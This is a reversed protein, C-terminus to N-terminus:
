GTVAPAPPKPPKPKPKPKPQPKPKPKPKPEPTPLPGPGLDPNPPPTASVVATETTDGCATPGAGANKLDGSYAAVWRYTGPLAPIFSASRYDGNGSVAATATFVPTGSCTTNAPGFLSFSIHGGPANGGSLHAVDFMPAGVGSPSSATTSFTPTVPTTTAPRVVVAEAADRCRTPGAAHNRHDGTYRARWRYVGSATPAFSASDYSGNDVVRTRSRFVPNGTCTANDPGYLVFVIGGTPNDGDSLHATDHIAGGLTVADSATTALHPVAPAATVTVHEAPDECGTTENGNVATNDSLFTARWRYLGPETPTFFPPETSYTGQGDVATSTTFVLHENTCDPDNPGFLTFVIQGRLPTSGGKLFATDSLATGLPVDRAARRIRGHSNIRSPSALTSLALPCNPVPPVFRNPLVIDKMESDIEFSARSHAWTAAVAGCPLNVSQMWQTLNIAAEGFIRPDLTAGSAYFGPLFNRIASGAGTPPVNTFSGQVDVCGPVIPTPALPCPNVMPDLSGRAACGNAARAGRRARASTVWKDVHVGGPLVTNGDQEFNILLDGTKRCPLTTGAPPGSQNLELTIDVSGTNAERTFALYLFTDANTQDIASYIDRINTSPPSAGNNQNRLAWTSPELEKSGSTFMNDPNNPDSTPVLTPSHVLDQWDVPPTNPPSPSGQNGDAGQFQSGPLTASTTSLTQGYATWAGFAFAGAVLVFM